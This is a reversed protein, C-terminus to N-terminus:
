EYGETKICMQRVRKRIAAVVANSWDFFSVIMMRM